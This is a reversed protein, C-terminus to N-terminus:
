RRRLDFPTLVAGADEAGDEAYLVGTPMTTIRTQLPTTAGPRKCGGPDTRADWHAADASTAKLDCGDGLPALDTKRLTLFADAGAGLVQDPREFRFREIRVAPGDSRLIWLRQRLPAATEANRWEEYLAFPGVADARVPVFRVAVPALPAARFSPELQAWQAANDYEGAVGDLVAQPTISVVPTTACASVAMALAVAVLKWLSLFRRAM